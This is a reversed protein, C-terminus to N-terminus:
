IVSLNIVEGPNAAIYEAVAAESKSLEPIMSRIRFSLASDEKQM